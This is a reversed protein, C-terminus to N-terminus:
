SLATVGAHLLAPTYQFSKGSSAIINPSYASLLHRVNQQSSLHSASLWAQTLYIDLGKVFQFVFGIPMSLRHRQKIGSGETCYIESNTPLWYTHWEVGLDAQHVTDFDGALSQLLLSTRHDVYRRGSSPQEQGTLVDILETLDIVVTLVAGRARRGFAVLPQPTLAPAVAQSSPCKPFLSKPFNSDSLLQLAIDHVNSGSRSRLHVLKLAFDQISLLVQPQLRMGTREAIFSPVLYQFKGCILVPHSKLASCPLIVEYM